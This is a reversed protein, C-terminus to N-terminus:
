ESADENEEEGVRWLTKAPKSGLPSYDEPDDVPLITEKSVHSGGDGYKNHVEAIKEAMLRAIEPNPASFELYFNAGYRTM